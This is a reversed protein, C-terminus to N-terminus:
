AALWLGLNLLALSLLLLAVNLGLLPLLAAVEGEEVEPPLRWLGVVLRLAVPAALWMLWTEAPLWGAAWALPVSVFAGLVLVAVLRAARRAGLTIALHHRGVRRDPEIDPLQNALLLASVMLTPVASVALATVSFGGTLAHNAGVVMLTGFGMGPAVLCLWPRRTLWGTYAVVLVMGLLGYFLLAPGARWLCWGGVILVGGLCALAARHVARAAEPQAPLAGSGGSFPTRRTTADLGSVFDHHENFLNVAAHALLAALLVLLIAVGELAWGDLWASTVALGACLPALVLFNPRACRWIVRLDSTSAAPATVRADHGPM